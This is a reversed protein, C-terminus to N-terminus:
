KDIFEIVDNPTCDLLKCIKELNYMTISRNNRLANMLRKDIDGSQLLSYKTKGKSNLTDWLPNYSISM